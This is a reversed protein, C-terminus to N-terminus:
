RIGPDCRTDPSCKTTGPGHDVNAGPRAMVLGVIACDHGNLRRLDHDGLARRARCRDNLRVGLVILGDLGRTRYMANFGFVYRLSDTREERADTM